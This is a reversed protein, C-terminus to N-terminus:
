LLRRDRVAAESASAPQVVSPRPIGGQPPALRTKCGEKATVVMELDEAVLRRLTPQHENWWASLAPLSRVAALEWLAWRRLAASAAISQEGPEMLTPLRAHTRCWTELMAPSQALEIALLVAGLLPSAGPPPAWRRFEAIAEAM